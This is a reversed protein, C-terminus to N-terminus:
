HFNQYDVVAVRGYFGDAQWRVRMRDIEQRYARYSGARLGHYYLAHFPLEFPVVAPSAGIALIILTAALLMPRKRTASPSLALFVIAALGYLALAALALGSFSWRPLLVFEGLLAGLVGGLTNSCFVVGVWFGPRRSGRVCILTVLPFNAGMAIAALFVIGFIAACVELQFMAYSSAAQFLGLHIRGFWGAPRLVLVGGIAVAAFLGAAVGYPDVIRAIYRRMLFSGAGLGGLFGALVISLSFVSTGNLVYFFRNWGTELLLAALGTFFFVASVMWLRPASEEEIGARPQPREPKIKKASAPLTASRELFIRGALVLAGGGLLLTAAGLGLHPILVFGALLAGLGAGLTDMAYVMSLDAGLDHTGEAALRTAIPFIAGIAFTPAILCLFVVFAKSSAAAAPQLDLPVFRLYLSRALDFLPLSLACWAGLVLLLRALIRWPREARDAWHGGVFAGGALGLLFVSLVTALVAATSGFLFGLKRVWVVQCGLSILNTSFVVFLLLRRRASLPTMPM